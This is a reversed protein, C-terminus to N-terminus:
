YNFINYDTIKVEQYESGLFISPIFGSFIVSLIMDSTFAAMPVTKLGDFILYLLIVM